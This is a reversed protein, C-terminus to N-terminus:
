FTENILMAQIAPAAQNKKLKNSCPKRVKSFQLVPSLTVFATTEGLGTAGHQDHGYDTDITTVLHIRPTPM